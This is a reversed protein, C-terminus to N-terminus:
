NRSVTKYLTRGIRQTSHIFLLSGHVFGTSCWCATLMQSLTSLIFYSIAHAPPVWQSVSWSVHTTTDPVQVSPVDLSVRPKSHMHRISTQKIRIHQATHDHTHTHIRTYAHTHTHIRTYAHTHMHAHTHTHTRAATIFHIAPTSYRFDIMSSINWEFTSRPVVGQQIDIPLDSNTYSTNCMSLTEVLCARGHPITPFPPPNLRYLWFWSWDPFLTWRNPNFRIKNGQSHSTINTLRPNSLHADSWLSYVSHFSNVVFRFPM